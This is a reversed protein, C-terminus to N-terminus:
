CLWSSRPYPCFLPLPSVSYVYRHNYPYFTENSAWEPFTPDKQKPHNRFLPLAVTTAAVHSLSYIFRYIFLDIFLDIHRARSAGYLKPAFALQQAKLSWNRWLNRKARQLMFFRGRSPGVGRQPQRPHIARRSLKATIGSFLGVKRMFEVVPKGAPEMDGRQSRKGRKIAFFPFSKFYKM